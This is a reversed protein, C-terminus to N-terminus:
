NSSLEVYVRGVKEAQSKVHFNSRVYDYGNQAIVSRYDPDQILHIIGEALKNPNKVEVLEGTVHNTVLEMTGGAMTAIVPKKMAMAELVGIPFAEWLSPLCYLDIANLVEPVRTSFPQMIVYSELHLQKITKEILPKLVGDGVMLLKVEPNSKVVMQLANLMTVPDKQNTYRVIYGILFTEKDVGYNRRLDPYDLDPDFRNINVANHIVVSRQLHCRTLGDNQDNKSACIVKDCKKTLYSEVKERMNREMFKQDPHFSWSHVTYLLPLHSQKAARFTNSLARTGHAHVIDIHESQLIDKVKNWVRFDFPKETYVVYCKIGREKLVDVMHGSTFALVVSEYRKDDLNNVLDLVHSEGGGIQGQRITHLIKYKKM